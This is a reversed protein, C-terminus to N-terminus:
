RGREVQETRSRKRYSACTPRWEMKTQTVPMLRRMEKFTEESMNIYMEELHTQANGEAEKMVRLIADGVDAAREQSSIEEEVDKFSQLQLNGNEFIKAQELARHAKRYQVEVSLNTRCHTQVTTPRVSSDADVMAVSNAALFKVTINPKTLGLFFSHQGIMTVCIQQLSAKTRSSTIDFSCGDAKCIIRASIERKAQTKTAYGHLINHENVEDKFQEWNDYIQGVVLEPLPM